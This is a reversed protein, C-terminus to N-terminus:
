GLGLTFLKGQSPHFKVKRIRIFLPLVGNIRSAAMGTTATVAVM